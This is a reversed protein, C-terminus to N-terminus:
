WIPSRSRASSFSFLGHHSLQACSYLVHVLYHGLHMKGPAHCGFGLSQSDVNKTRPKKKKGKVPSINHSRVTFPAAISADGINMTSRDEAADSAALIRDVIPIGTVKEVVVVPPRAVTPSKGTVKSNKSVDAVVSPKEEQFVLAVGVDAKKLASVDNTGDGCMLVHLNLNRLGVVIQEKHAPSCRAFVTVYPLLKPPFSPLASGLVCLTHQKRLEAVKGAHFPAVQVGFEDCWHGNDAFIIPPFTRIRMDRAVAVATLESDGTIMVNVVGAHQLADLIEATGPRPLCEFVVFGNFSLDRELEARDAAKADFAPFPKSALAIVRYGLQAFHRYVKDFSETREEERLLSRVVEPAGKVCVRYEPKTGNCSVISVTTMRRLQASFHYLLVTDVSIKKAALTSSRDGSLKFGIKDFVACELPDGILKGEVRSLSHCGGIVAMADDDITKSTSHLELTRAVGKFILDDRTLTGTKDFCCVDLKGALPIRFPEITFVGKLRLAAMSTTVALALQIPLEPPVVSTIIM